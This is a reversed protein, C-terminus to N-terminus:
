EFSALAEAETEYLPLMNDLNTMTFIELKKESVHYLVLRAGRQQLAKFMSVILGIGTSDILDVNELSLAIGKTAEDKLLPKFFAELEDVREFAMNGNVTVICVGKEYHHKILM